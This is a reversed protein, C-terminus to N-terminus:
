PAFGVLSFLPRLPLTYIGVLWGRLSRWISLMSDLLYYSLRTSGVNDDMKDDYSRTTSTQGIPLQNATVLIYDSYDPITQLKGGLPRDNTINFAGALVTVLEAYTLCDREGTPQLTYKLIKVWSEHLGVLTGTCVPM